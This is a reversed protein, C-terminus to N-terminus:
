LSIKGLEEMHRQLKNCSKDFFLCMKMDHTLNTFFPWDHQLITEIESMPATALLMSGYKLHLKDDLALFFNFLKKRNSKEKVEESRITSVTAEIITRVTENEVVNKFFRDLKILEEPCHVYASFMMFGNELDKYSVNLNRGPERLKGLEEYTNLNMQGMTCTDANKPEGLAIIDDRTWNQFGKAEQIWDVLGHEVFRPIDSEIAWDEPMGPHKMTEQDDRGNKLFWFLEVCTENHSLSDDVDTSYWVQFGPFNLQEKTFEFTHHDKKDLKNVSTKCIFTYTLTCPAKTWGQDQYLAACLDELIQPRGDIWKNFVWTSNDAWHWDQEEKLKKGGIWTVEERVLKNMRQHERESLVSALHGGHTLCHANADM